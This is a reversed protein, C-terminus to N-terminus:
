RRKGLLATQLAKANGTVTSTKKIFMTDSNLGSNSPIPNTRHDINRVMYMLAALADFHGYNTSREWDRRQDNWVGYKLCGITQACKPNVIIRGSNVWLRLENVMTELEDKSTPAFHLGHLIGLDQLFLLNNNDSVRLRPAKEGWLEKEKAKVAVAIKDTTMQPGNFFIEDEIYLKARKFDYTAFLIPTLDRVGIDMGEFKFYFNYFEDHIYQEVYKDNWEPIIAFNSDVVFQCMYERLWTTSERGGAEKCFQEIVEESYEGEYINFEAYSNSLKSEQVYELCEHAPTKPPTLLIWLPGRAKKAGLLQPMLVDNILYKLHAIEQAEDVVCLDAARGRLRGIAKKNDCGAVFLKAGTSPFYYHHQSSKWIPKIDPPADECLIEMLPEIITVLMDRTPAAYRILGNKKKLGVLQMAEILSTSTKRLRRSCNLLKKLSGSSTLVKAMKKQVDWYKYTLDGNRWNTEREKDSFKGERLGSALRALAIALPSSM